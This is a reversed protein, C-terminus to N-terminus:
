DEAARVTQLDYCYAEEDGAGVRDGQGGPLVVEIPSKLCAVQFASGGDVIMYEADFAAADEPNLRDMVLLWRGQRPIHTAQVATANLVEGTALNKLGRVEYRHWSRFQVCTEGNADPSRTACGGPQHDTLNLHRLTGIGVVDGACAPPAVCIVLVILLKKM